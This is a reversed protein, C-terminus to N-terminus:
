LLGLVPLETPRYGHHHPALEGNPANSALSQALRMPRSRYQLRNSWFTAQREIDCADGDINLKSSSPRVKPASSINASMKISQKL